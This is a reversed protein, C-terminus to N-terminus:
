DFIEINKQALANQYINNELENILETKRKNYLVVKIKPKVIDFPKTDGILKYDKIRVFYFFNDDKSKIYQKKKLFKKPNAIKNPLMILVESFHIWKNDFYKYFLENKAVFEDLKLSDKSSFFLRNFKKVSEFESPIKYFKAKVIERDNKFSEPYSKYYSEIESDTIVTDLKQKLFEQKYKDILLSARYDEVIKDISKQEESLNIEAKNLILQKQIWLEIKRKTIIASDKSSIGERIINELDEAYLRKDFVRALPKKNINEDKKECSLLFIIFISFYIFVQNKKM